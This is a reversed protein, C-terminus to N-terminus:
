EYVNPPPACSIGNGCDQTIPATMANAVGIGCGIGCGGFTLLLACSLIAIPKM